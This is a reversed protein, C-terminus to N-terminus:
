TVLVVMHLKLGLNHSGHRREAVTAALDPPDLGLLRGLLPVGLLHVVAMQEQWQHEEGLGIQRFARPLQVASVLVLPVRPHELLVVL